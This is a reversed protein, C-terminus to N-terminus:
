LIGTVLGSQMCSGADCVAIHPMYLVTLHRHIHGSLVHWQLGVHCSTLLCAFTFLTTLMGANQSVLETIVPNHFPHVVLVLVSCSVDCSKLISIHQM